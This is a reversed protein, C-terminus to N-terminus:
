SRRRAHQISAAGLERLEREIQAEDFRPDRDDIGVWFRDLSARGFGEVDFVPAYLEPLKCLVLFVLVGGISASLVGMEFTIPVFAPASDLPRGGVNIPYDLTNCFWQLLYALGAGAMAIPFTIWCLPSRPLGIAQEAGKVPYPSFADIRGYGRRRLARIAAVMEEPTLFEAMLGTRM